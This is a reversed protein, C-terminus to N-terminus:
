EHNGLRGFIMERKTGFGKDKKMPDEYYFNFKESTRAGIKGDKEYKNNLAFVSGELMKLGNINIKEKLILFSLKIREM